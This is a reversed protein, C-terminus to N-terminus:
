YDGVAVHAVVHGALERAGAIAAEQGLGGWQEDDGQADHCTVTYMNASVAGVCGAEDNANYWSAAADGIGEITTGSHEAVDAELDELAVDGGSVGVVPDDSNRIFMVAAFGATQGYRLSASSWQCDRLEWGDENDLEDVTHDANPVLGSLVSGEATDCEPLSGHEGVPEGTPPAADDAIGSGDDTVIIIAVVAIVVALLISLGVAAVAALGRRRPARPSRRGRGDRGRGGGAPDSGRRPRPPLGQGPPPGPAGVPSPAPEASGGRPPPSM